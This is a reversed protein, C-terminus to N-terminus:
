ILLYKTNTKEPNITGDEGLKDIVAPLSGEPIANILETLSVNIDGRVEVQVDNGM